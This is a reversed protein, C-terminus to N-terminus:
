VAGSATIDGVYKAILISKHLIKNLGIEGLYNGHFIHKDNNRDVYIKSGMFYKKTAGNLQAELNLDYKPLARSLSFACVKLPEVNSRQLSKANQQLNKFRFELLDQTDKETWQTQPEPNKIIWKELFVDQSARGEFIDTDFLVGIYKDSHPFLCGFGEINPRGEGPWFVSVSTMHNYNIKLGLANPRCDIVIDAGLSKVDQIETDLHVSVSAQHKFFEEAKEFFELMGTEPAMSGKSKPQPKQFLSSLCLSASLEQPRNSYVGSLAPGIFEDVVQPTRFVRDGWQKITEQEKFIWRPSGKAVGLLRDLNKFTQFASLPWRSPGKATMVWRKRSTKKKKAWTVGFDKAMEDVAESVLISNAAPEVLGWTDRQTQLLGGLCSHKEYIDIQVDWNQRHAEKCLAWAVSLGSFGGGIVAVKKM